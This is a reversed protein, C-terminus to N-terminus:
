LYFLSGHLISIGGVVYSLVTDILFIFASYGNLNIQEYVKMFTLTMSVGAAFLSLPIFIYYRNEKDSTSIMFLFSSLTSIILLTVSFFASMTIPRNLEKTECCCTSLCQQFLGTRNFNEHIYWNNTSISLITTTLIFILFMSILSDIVLKQNSSM